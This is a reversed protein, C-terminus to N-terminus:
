DWSQKVTFLAQEPESSKLTNENYLYSKNIVSIACILKGMILVFTQINHVTEGREGVDNCCSLLISCM